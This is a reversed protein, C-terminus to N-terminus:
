GDRVSMCRRPWGEKLFASFGEFFSLIVLGDLEEGFGGFLERVPADDM